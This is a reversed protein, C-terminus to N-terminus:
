TYLIKVQCNDSLILTAFIIMICSAGLNMGYYQVIITHKIPTHKCKWYNCDKGWPHSTNWEFTFWLIQIMSKVGMEYITEIEWVIGWKVLIRKSFSKSLVWWGCAFSLKWIILFWGTECRYGWCFWSFWPYWRVGVFNGNYYPLVKNWMWIGCMLIGDWFSEFVGTFNLM